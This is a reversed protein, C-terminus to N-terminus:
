PRGGGRAGGAEPLQVRDGAAVGSVVETILGDSLGLEVVTPLARASEGTGEVKRVLWRGEEDRAFARQPL